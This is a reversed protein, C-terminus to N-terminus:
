CTPAYLKNNKYFNKYAKMENAESAACIDSTFKKKGQASPPLWGTRYKEKYDQKPAEVAPKMEIASVPAPAAPDPAVYNNSHTTAAVEITITTLVEKSSSIHATATTEEETVVTATAMTTTTETVTTVMTITTAMTTITSTITTGIAM